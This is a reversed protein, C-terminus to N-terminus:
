VIEYLRKEEERTIGTKRSATKQNMEEEGGHNRCPSHWLMKIDSVAM